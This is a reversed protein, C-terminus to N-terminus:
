PAQPGNGPDNRARVAGTVTGPPGEQAARALLLALEALADISPGLRQELDPRVAGYRRLSRPAADSLTAWAGSCVAAVIRRGSQVEVPLALQDALADLGQRALRVLAELRARQEPTFDAEDRYLRGCEGGALLHEVTSLAREFQRVAVTVARLQAENLLAPLPEPEFSSRAPGGSRNM